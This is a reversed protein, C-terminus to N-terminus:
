ENVNQNLNIIERDPTIEIECDSYSAGYQQIFQSFAASITDKSSETYTDNIKLELKIKFGM